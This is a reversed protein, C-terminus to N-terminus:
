PEPFTALVLLSRSPGALWGLWEVGLLAFCYVVWSWFSYPSLSLAISASLSPSLTCYHLCTLRSPHSCFPEGHPSQQFFTAPKGCRFFHPDTKKKSFQRFITTEGQAPNIRQFHHQVAQSKEGETKPKFVWADFVVHGQWLVVVVVPWWQRWRWSRSDPSSTTKTDPSPPTKLPGIGIGPICNPISTFHLRPGPFGAGAM